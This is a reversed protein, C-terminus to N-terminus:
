ICSDIEKMCEGSNIIEIVSIAVRIIYIAPIDKIDDCKLILESLKKTDM